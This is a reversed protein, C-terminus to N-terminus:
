RQSKTAGIAAEVFKLLHSAEAAGKLLVPIDQFKRRFAGVPESHVDATFFAIAQRQDEQRIAAALDLGDM